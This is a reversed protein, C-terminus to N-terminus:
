GTPQASALLLHCLGIRLVQTVAHNICHLSALQATACRRPAVLDAFGYRDFPKLPNFPISRSLRDPVATM